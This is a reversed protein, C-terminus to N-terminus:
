HNERFYKFTNFINEALKSFPANLKENYIRNKEEKSTTNNYDIIAQETEETFYVNSKKTKAKRKLTTTFFNFILRDNNVISITRLQPEIKM